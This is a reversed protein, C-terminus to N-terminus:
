SEGGDNLPMRSAEEWRARNKARYAWWVWFGFGALFLLTMAGLLWGLSATEAAQHLLPNM